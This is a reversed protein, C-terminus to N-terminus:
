SELSNMDGKCWVRVNGMEPTIGIGFWQVPLVHHRLYGCGHALCVPSRQPMSLRLVRYDAPWGRASRWSEAGFFGAHVLSIRHFMAEIKKRKEGGERLPTVRGAPPSERSEDYM